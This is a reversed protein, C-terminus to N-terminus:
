LKKACAILVFFNDIGNNPAKWGANSMHRFRVQPMLVISNSLNLRLGATFNNSYVFGKAQLATSTSQYAPGSGISFTLAIPKTVQWVGEIVINFALDFDRNGRTHTSGLGFQLDEHMRLSIRTDKKTLQKSRGFSGLLVSYMEGGPFREDIFSNGVSFRLEKQASVGVAMFVASAIIGIIRWHYITV